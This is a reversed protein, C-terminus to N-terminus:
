GLGCSRVWDETTGLSDSRSMGLSSRVLSDWFIGFDGFCGLVDGFCGLVSLVHVGKVEPCSGM